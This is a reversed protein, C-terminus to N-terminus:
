GNSGGLNKHELVLNRLERSTSDEILLGELEEQPVMPNRVANLHLRPDPSHLADLLHEMGLAPHSLTHLIPYNTGGHVVHEIGEKYISNVVDPTINAHRLLQVKRADDLNAEHYFKLIHGDTLKPHEAVIDRLGEDESAWARDLHESRVHPSLLADAKQANDGSDFVEDVHETNFLPHKVADTRVGFHSDRLATSIHDHRVHNLKLAMRREAPVPHKLMRTVEGDGEFHNADVPEDEEESKIKYEYDGYRNDYPGVKNDKSWPLLEASYSMGHRASVKEHARHAFTSHHSGVVKKAGHYHKAHAMAAEYLHLGLGKGRHEERVDALGIDLVSYCRRTPRTASLSPRKPSTCDLPQLCDVNHDTRIEGGIEGVHHNHHFLYTYLEHGYAWGDHIPMTTARINYGKAREEPSLVHDYNFVSTDLKGRAIKRRVYEPTKVDGWGSEEGPKIDAIAMKLLESKGIHPDNPNFTGSNGIASKIQHQYFAVWDDRDVNGDTMSNRIVVGDHGKDILHQRFHKWTPHDKAEDHMEEYEGYEAPNKISLHVPLVRAGEKYANYPASPDKDETFSGAVYEANGPDYNGLYKSPASFWHGLDGAWPHRAQGRGEKRPGQGQADKDAFQSFDKATGHFAVIPKNTPRYQTVGYKKPQDPDKEWHVAKSGNFWDHFEPTKTHDKDQSAAGDALESKTVDPNSPDFTGSNRIPTEAKTLGSEQLGLLRLTVDKHNYLNNAIEAPLGEKVNVWKFESFEHDPDNRASPTGRGIAKFSYIRVNGKRGALAEGLYTLEEPVLSCEEMMERVAAKEPAENGECHGGPMTWKGCDRRKGFLLRDDKGFVAVSSVRREKSAESKQVLPAGYKGKIYNIAKAHDEMDLLHDHGGSMTLRIQEPDEELYRAHGHWPEHIALFESPDVKHYHDGTVFPASFDKEPVQFEVTPIRDASGYFPAKSAYIAKPGEIGRAAALTLGNQRISELNAKDTQHYLRVHGPKLPATGLAPPLQNSM